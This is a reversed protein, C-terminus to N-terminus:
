GDILGIIKKTVTANNSLRYAEKLAMRITETIYKQGWTELVSCAVGRPWDYVSTLAAVIIKEGLGPYDVIYNLPVLLAKEDIAYLKLHHEVFHLASKQCSMDDVSFIYPLLEYEYPHDCLYDFIPKWNDIGIMVAFECLKHNVVENQIINNKIYQTWDKAFVISDGLAILRHLSNCDLYLINNDCALSNLIINIRQIPLIDEPVVAHTKAHRYFDFILGEPAFLSSDFNSEAVAEDQNSVLTLFAYIIRAAGKFTREDIEKEHMHQAMRSVELIHIALPPFDAEADMGHQILWLEQAENNCRVAEIAFVNGWGSTCGILRWFAKMPEYNSLKCAYIFVYTFEECKAVTILDAWLEEDMDKIREIGYIGFILYAFKLPGRHKANYFFSRALAIAKDDLEIEQLKACLADMILCIAQDTLAKYLKQKHTHDTYSFYEMVLNSIEAAGNGNSPKGNIIWFAEESGLPHKVSPNQDDPLFNGIYKEDEADINEIIYQYLTKNNM